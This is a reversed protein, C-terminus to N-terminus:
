AARTCAATICFELNQLIREQARVTFLPAIFGLRARVRAEADSSLRLLRVGVCALVKSDMRFTLSPRM